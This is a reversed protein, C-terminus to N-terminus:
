PKNCQKPSTTIIWTHSDELKNKIVQTVDFEYRRRYSNAIMQQMITYVAVGILNDNTIKTALQEHLALNDYGKCVKAITLIEVIVLVFISKGERLEIGDKSSNKLYIHLM